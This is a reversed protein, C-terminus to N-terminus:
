RAMMPACRIARKLNRLATTGFSKGTPVARFCKVTCSRAPFIAASSRSSVGGGKGVDGLDVTPDVKAHAAFIFELQPVSEADAM